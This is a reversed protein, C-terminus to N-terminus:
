GGVFVFAIGEVVGVVFAIGDEFVIRAEFESM